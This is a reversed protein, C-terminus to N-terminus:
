HFSLPFGNAKWAEYLFAEDLCYVYLVEDGDQYDEAEVRVEVELTSNDKFQGSERAQETSIIIKVDYESVSPILSQFDDDKLTPIAKKAADLQLLGQQTQQLKVIKTTKEKLGSFTLAFRM